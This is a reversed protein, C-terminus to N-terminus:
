LMSGLWDCIPLRRIDERSRMCCNRVVDDDDFLRHCKSFWLLLLRYKFQNTNSHRALLTCHRRIAWFVSLRGRWSRKITTHNRCHSFCFLVFCFLITYKCVVLSNVRLACHLLQKRKTVVRNGISIFYSNSCLWRILIDIYPIRSPLPALPTALAYDHM